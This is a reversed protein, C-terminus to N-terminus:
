FWNLTILRWKEYSSREVRAMYRTKIIAGFSNSAEVYGSVIYQQTQGQKEIKVESNSPRPFTASSPSKLSEEVFHQAAYYADSSWDITKWNKEEDAIMKAGQASIIIFILVLVGLGIGIIAGCGMSQKENDESM